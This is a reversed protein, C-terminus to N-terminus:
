ANTLKKGCSACYLTLANSYRASVVAMMFLVREWTHLNVSWTWKVPGLMFWRDFLDIVPWFRGIQWIERFDM